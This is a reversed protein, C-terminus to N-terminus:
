RTSQTIPNPNPQSPAYIRFVMAAAVSLVFIVLFALTFVRYLRLKAKKTM